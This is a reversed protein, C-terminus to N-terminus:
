SDIGYPHTQETPRQCTLLVKPRNKLERGPALNATEGRIPCVRLWLGGLGRFAVADSLVKDDVKTNNLMLNELRQLRRLYQFGAGNISTNMLRLSGLNVNNRLFKLGEDTIQTGDLHLEWLDELNQLYKLRSEGVHCNSLGLAALSHLDQLSELGADSIDTDNLWLSQLTDLGRVHKLGEDSVSSGHLYLANICDLEKMYKLGRDPDSEPPFTVSFWTADKGTRKDTWFGAPKILGGAKEIQRVASTQKSYNM